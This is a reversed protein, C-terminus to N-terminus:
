SKPSSEKEAYVHVPANPDPPCNKVVWKVGAGDFLNAEASEPRGLVLFLSVQHPLIGAQQVADMATQWAADIDPFPSEDPETDWTAFFFYLVVGVLIVILGLLPAYYPKLRPSFEPLWRGLNIADNFYYLTYEFALFLFLLILWR